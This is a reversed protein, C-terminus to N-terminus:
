AQNGYPILGALQLMRKDMKPLCTPKFRSKPDISGDERLVANSKYIINDHPWHTTNSWMQFAKKKHEISESTAFYRPSYSVYVVTRIQKSNPCPEQGWHCTRSDWLIVDGPECCVKVEECGRNLFFQAQENSFGYYDLTDWNDHDVQTNFFEEFYKHSGKYVVLGGDNPGHNSLAVIGQICQLGTKFPSQDVHLWKEKPKKDARPFTINLSDFSVLLEDTGYIDRFPKIVGEECRIDWMFEEHAIANSCFVNFDTQAPINEEKWTEAKSIDLETGFSTVWNFARNQYEKSKEPSIAGKLIAYGDKLFDQRWDNYTKSTITKEATAFVENPVKELCKGFSFGFTSKQSDNKTIPIPEFDPKTFKAELAQM